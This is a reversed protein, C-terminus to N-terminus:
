PVLTMIVVSKPRFTALKVSEAAAEGVIGAFPSYAV